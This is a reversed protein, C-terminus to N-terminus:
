VPRIDDILWNGDVSILHVSLRSGDYVPQQDPRTVTRNMFALVSADSATLSIIGTDVVKAESNAGAVKDAGPADRQFKAGYGTTMLALVSVNHADVSEAKYSFIQEINSTTVKQVAARQQAGDTVVEAPRKSLLEWAGVGVVVGISVVLAVILARRVHPPDFM